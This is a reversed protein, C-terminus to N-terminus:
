FFIERSFFGVMTFSDKFLKAERLYPGNKGAVAIAQQFHTKSNKPDM